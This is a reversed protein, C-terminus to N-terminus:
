TLQGRNVNSSIHSYFSRYLELHCSFIIKINTPFPHNRTITKKTRRKM